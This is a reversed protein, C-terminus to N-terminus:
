RPPFPRSASAAVGHNGAFVAVRPHNIAPPAKGQWTSLWLALEELRGLAGAPKTLQGERAATTGAADRDPGPFESVIRRMEAFSAISKNDLM